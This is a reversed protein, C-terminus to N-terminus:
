QEVMYYALPIMVDHLDMDHWSGEGAAGATFITTGLVYPDKRMEEDYWALLNVYAQVGTPGVGQEVWWDAFKTWSAGGPGNCSQGPVIGAVALESIVLPLDGIGAPKLHGEYWFRYRLMMYGVTVGQFGPAGPIVNEQSTFVGCGFLPSVGEHLTFIGGCGHAAQLAPMFLAMEDYEPGGAVWGGVAARLGLAQMQCAREAEFEAYWVLRARTVPVFENWGEWYDVGDNLRYRDIQSAIYERAADAPTKQEPWDENQGSLRGITVTNPSAEKVDKLWGLDDVAKMVRPRTRRVFEMIFPDNNRVVHLGLKSETMRSLGPPWDPTPQAPPPEPLLPAPVTPTSVNVAIEPLFSYYTDPTSTPGGPEGLRATFPGMWYRRPTIVAPGTANVVLESPAGQMLGFPSNGGSVELNLVALFAVAVVVGVVSMRRRQTPSLRPGGTSPNEM